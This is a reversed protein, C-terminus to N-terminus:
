HIRKFGNCDAPFIKAVAAFPHSDQGGGLAAWWCRPYPPNQATGDGYMRLVLAAAGESKATFDSPAAARTPRHYPSPPPITLSPRSAPPTALYPCPPPPLPVPPTQIVVRCATISLVAVRENLRSTACWTAVFVTPDPTSPGDAPFLPANTVVRRAADSREELFPLIPNLGGYELLSAASFARLPDIKKPSKGKKIM